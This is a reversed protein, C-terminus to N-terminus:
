LFLGSYALSALRAMEGATMKGAMVAGVVDDQWLCIRVGDRQVIDVRPPSTPRRLYLTFRENQPDRYDIEVAKGGPVGSFVEIADLRYGAKVLDPAKIRMGLAASVVRNRDDPRAVAAAAVSQEPHLADVRAALAESVIADDKSASPNLASIGWGILVLLAAAIAAIFQPPMFKPRAPRTAAAAHAEIMRRWHAPVPMEAVAGYAELLRQKDARFAAIRQGLLPNSQAIRGIEAAREPELERDIFAHLEEESIAPHTTNM